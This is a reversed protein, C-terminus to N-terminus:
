CTTRKNSYSSFDAATWEDQATSKATGGPILFFFIRPKNEGVSIMQYTKAYEDSCFIGLASSRTRRLTWNEHQVFLFNTSRQSM